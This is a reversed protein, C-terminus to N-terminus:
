VATNFDSYVTEAYVTSNTTIPFLTMVNTVAADYIVTHTLSVIKGTVPMYILEATCDRYKLEISDYKGTINSPIVMSGFTDADIIDFMSSTYSAAKKAGSETVKPNVEERLVLTLKVSGDDLKEKEASLLAESAKSTNTMCAYKAQPICFETQSSGFAIVKQSPSDAPIFYDPFNKELKKLSVSAVIAKEITRYETKTFGYKLKNSTNVVTKYEDLIAKKAKAVAPSDTVPETTAPASTTAPATTTTTESASAETSAAPKETTPKDGSASTTEVASTQAPATTAQTPLAGSTVGGNASTTATNNTPAPSPTVTGSGNDPSVNNNGSNNGSDPVYVDGTDASGGNSSVAPKKNSLYAVSLIKMSNAALMGILICFVVLGLLLKVSKKNSLDIKKM